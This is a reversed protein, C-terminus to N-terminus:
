ISLTNLLADLDVTYSKKGYKECVQQKLMKEVDLISFDPSLPNQSQPINFMKEATSLLAERTITDEDRRLAMRAAPRILKKMLNTISGRTICLLRLALEPDKLGVFQEFPLQEDVKKLFLLWERITELSYEPLRHCIPFRNGLESFEELLSQCHPLGMLVVPIGTQNILTKIWFAADRRASDTNKRFANHFEDIIILEIECKAALKWFMDNLDNRYGKFTLTEEEKGARSIYREPEHLARLIETPAAKPNTDDPLKAYLVPIIDRQGDKDKETRRPYKSLYYEIIKSKGAGSEGIILVSDPQEKYGCFVAEERAIKIDEYIEHIQKTMVVFQNLHTRKEDLSMHSYSKEKKLM